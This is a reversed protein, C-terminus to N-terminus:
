IINGNKKYDISKEVEKMENLLKLKQFDKFIIKDKNEIKLDILKEKIRKYVIKSTYSMNQVKEYIKSSFKKTRINMISNSNYLHSKVYSNKKQENNKRKFKYLFDDYKLFKPFKKKKSKSNNIKETKISLSKKLSTKISKTLCFNDSNKKLKLNRNGQISSFNIISDSKNKKCFDNFEEKKKTVYNLIMKDSSSKILRTKNQKEVLQRLRILNLNKNVKKKPILKRLEKINPYLRDIEDYILKINLDSKNKLRNYPKFNEDNFDDFVKKMDYFFIFAYIFSLIFNLYFINIHNFFIINYISM